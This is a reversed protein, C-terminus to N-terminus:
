TANFEALAVSLSTTLPVVPPSLVILAAVMDPLEEILRVVPAALKPPLAKVMWFGVLKLLRKVPSPFSVKTAFLLLPMRSPPRPTFVSVPPALLFIKTTCWRVLPKSVMILKLTACDSLNSKTPKPPSLKLENVLVWCPASTSMPPNPLPCVINTFFM